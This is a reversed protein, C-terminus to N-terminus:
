RPDPGAPARENGGWTRARSPLGPRRQHLLEPRRARRARPDGRRQWGVGGAEPLADAVPRSRGPDDEALLSIPFAGRLSLCFARDCGGGREQRRHHSATLGPRPWSSFVFVQGLGSFAVVRSLFLCGHAAYSRALQGHRVSRHVLGFSGALERQGLQDSPAPPLHAQGQCLHGPQHVLGGFFGPVVAQGVPLRDVLVFVPADRVVAPQAQQRGSQHTGKASARAAPSRWRAWRCIARAAPEIRPAATPYRPPRRIGAVVPTLLGPAFRLSGPAAEARTTM